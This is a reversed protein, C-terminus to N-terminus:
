GDRAAPIGAGAQVAEFFRSRGEMLRGCKERLTPGSWSPSSAVNSKARPRPAISENSDHVNHHTKGPHPRLRRLPM